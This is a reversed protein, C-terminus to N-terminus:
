EEEKLEVEAYLGRHDSIYGGMIEENLIQYTLPKMFAPTYYIYDIIRDYAYDPDNYGNVTSSENNGLDLNLDRVKGSENFIKGCRSEPTVNFDGNLLLGYKSFAEREEMRKLILEASRASAEGGSMHTNVYYFTEGTEKLRLLVFNCIRHHYSGFSKTSMEPMDSLWFHGEKVLDFKDRKWLIPTAEISRENRYLYRMKYADYLHDDLFDIWRRSAEQLGIVDPEYKRILAELRPARDAIMRNEGDDTYRINYDIIKIKSGM